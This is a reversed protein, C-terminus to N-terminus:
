LHKLFAFVQEIIKEMKLIEKKEAVKNYNYNNFAFKFISIAVIL